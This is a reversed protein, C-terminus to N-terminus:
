GGIIAEIVEKKGKGIDLKQINKEYPNIFDANAIIDGLRDMENKGLTEVFGKFSDKQWLNQHVAIVPTMVSLAEFVSLGPSTIVLDAKHMLEAVNRINKYINVNEKKAPHQTLVRNLADFYEFHLGLVVDIRFDKKLSLLENLVTSTLNSPDSGGFILLVKTVKGSLIEETRNFECFEKRLIWYKPGYFYLTNTNKDLFRRNEFQSGFVANVVIDAYENAASTNEFIVLRTKISAKLTKAFNEEVELKDIVVIDPKLEKLSELMESDDNLKYAIFGAEKIHKLTTMDSKTLFSLEAKDGIEGALTVMRVIHGMGMDPGGETVFAIKMM